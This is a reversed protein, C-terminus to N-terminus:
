SLVIVQDSWSSWKAVESGREDYTSHVTFFGETLVVRANCIGNKLLESQRSCLIQFIYM